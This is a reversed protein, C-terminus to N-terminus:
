GAPESFGKLLQPNIFINCHQAVEECLRTFPYPSRCIRDLISNNTQEAPGSETGLVLALNSHVANRGSGSAAHVRALPAFQRVAVGRSEREKCEKTITLLVAYDGCPNRDHHSDLLGGATEFFVAFPQVIAM